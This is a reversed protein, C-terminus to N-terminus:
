QDADAQISPRVWVVAGPLSALFVVAGYAMSVAVGESAPLGLATWAIAAGAERWGWGAVSLPILMALLAPLALLFLLGPGPSAALGQGVLAFVVGYSSVILLSLSLQLPWASSRFLATRADDILAALPSWRRTLWLLILVAALSLSAVTILGNGRDALGPDARWILALMVPLALVGVVLQGSAREIIVARWAPGVQGSRRGHRNARWADGLVGGPLIQNTFSALYYDAVAPRWGLTLGLRRATFRWRWASLLLQVASVLLALVLWRWDIQQWHSALTALDIFTLLAMLVAVSVLWRLSATARM